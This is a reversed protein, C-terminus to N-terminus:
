THGKMITEVTAPFLPPRVSGPQWGFLLEVAPGCVRGQCPGMGCRTHIKAERWSQKSALEAYTIDECRCVITDPKPLQKLEPRLTFATELAQKFRGWRKRAPFFARAKEFQDTAAYGAIKGQLVALDVGGIGTVEGACFISPDNTAQFETLNTPDLGLLDLLERNPVLGYGMALYDCPINRGGITVSELQNKGHAETVWTCPSFRPSWLRIAEPWKSRPLAAAFRILQSWPAQEAILVVHAHHKLFYSAVALLLPGSGAVVIRKNAVSLGSKALAQLGGAGFVGPLTWGPFPLFLERAGTAIILKDFKRDANSVRTGLQLRINELRAFPHDMARWIQGGTTHNDDMLTVEAGSESATSAAALGAPGAGVVIVNM